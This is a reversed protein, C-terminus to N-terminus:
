SEQIIIKLHEQLRVKGECTCETAVAYCEVALMKVTALRKTLEDVRKELDTIRAEMEAERAETKAATEVERQKMREVEDVLNTLVQQNITVGNIAADRNVNTLAQGKVYDRLWAGGGLLTGGGIFISMIVAGADYEAM